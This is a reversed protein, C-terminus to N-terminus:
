PPQLSHFLTTESGHWTKVQIHWTPHQCISQSVTKGRGRGGLSVRCICLLAETQRIPYLISNGTYGVSRHMAGRQPLPPHRTKPQPQFDPIVARSEPGGSSGREAKGRKRWCGPGELYSAKEELFPKLCAANRM